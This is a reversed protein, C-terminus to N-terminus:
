RNAEVNHSSETTLARGDEAAAELPGVPHSLM